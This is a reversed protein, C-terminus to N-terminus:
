SRRALWLLTVAETIRAPATCLSADSFAESIRTGPALWRSVEAAREELQGRLWQGLGRAIWDKENVDFGRKSRLLRISDPIKGRMARRLIWKGYGHRVKLSTPLALGLEVVRYDLFPLRSEVSSGMSNRDEYRLLTPLSFRTVDLMQRKWLALGPDMGLHLVAPEPLRLITGEGGIGLYRRRARLYVGLRPLEAGVLRALGVGAGVASGWRRERVSEQLHLAHFKRYGMLVEDGGQGGLMVKIGRRHAAQFVLNQAVVSGGAFPSDQAELTRQYAEVITDPDPWVYEVEIGTKRALQAVLPGESERRDPHGFSFGVVQEHRESLLAAVSSSDLGGSLSVGIPVDSRTRVAVADRLTELLMEQLTRPSLGALAERRLAVREELAYWRRTEASVREGDVRVQVCHGPALSQLGLYQSTDGEDEYLLYHLGRAVYSLDPELGMVKAIATGTSGFCVGNARVHFYLPKVGYRDRCLTLLGDRTDLIGFAFMGNFREFAETGWRRFAEILVESDSRTHFVHGLAALEGRLELYNYLEGNYSLCFRRGADWMPQNGADSLDIISLRDHGLVTGGGECGILEVAQVDPGRRLQDDVIRQVARSWPACPGVFMAGAIGCM